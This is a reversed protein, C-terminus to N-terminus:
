MHMLIIFFLIKSFFTLVSKQNTVMGIFLVMSGNRNQEQSVIQFDQTKSTILSRALNTSKSRLPILSSILVKSSYVTLPFRLSLGQEDLGDRKGYAGALLFVTTYQAIM